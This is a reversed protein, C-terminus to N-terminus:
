FWCPEVIRSSSRWDKVRKGLQELGHIQIELGVFLRMLFNMPPRLTGVPVRDTSLGALFSSQLVITNPLWRRLWHNVLTSKGVGAWAVITVVNVHPIQGHTMWSLSIKRGVM